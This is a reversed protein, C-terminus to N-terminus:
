PKANRDFHVTIVLIDDGARRHVVKLTKGGAASIARFSYTKGPQAQVRDPASITDVVWDLAVGREALMDLAHDTLVIM